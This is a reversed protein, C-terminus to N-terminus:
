HRTYKFEIYNWNYELPNEINYIQKKNSIVTKPYQKGIWISYKISNKNETFTVEVLDSNNTNRGNYNYLNNFYYGYRTSEGIKHVYGVRYTIFQLLSYRYDNKPIISTIRGKRIIFHEDYLLIHKIIDNPLKSFIFNNNKM